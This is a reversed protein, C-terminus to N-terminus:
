CLRVTRREAASTRAADLVRLTEVAQRAPVPLPSGCEIAAGLKDYYDTYDGQLSPVRKSGAATRLTGWREPSEYGWRARDDAPRTGALIAQTQVDAYSSEYSGLSGLVRLEKSVLRNLKSASLHSHVGGEHEIALAFGADTPGEPLAVWDLQASVQSAPGLLHLAQDVLHSGLDRLLGGAPGTELSEPDDLDFRADYRWVQGTEARDLVGRLTVFDTDWRRNHYVGLLVGASEAADILEQGSKATPAFPKDAVVHVGCGIAELVLNRRTAPPTSIVVADVGYDILDDLTDFVRAEPADRNAESRRDPSRTVIGVLECASSARIFPTHFYRGGPGYGVLGVRATM